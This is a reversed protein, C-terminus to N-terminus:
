DREGDPLQAEGDITLANVGTWHLAPHHSRDLSIRVDGLVVHELRRLALGGSKWNGGWHSPITRCDADDPIEPAAERIHLSIDRFTLNRIACADKSGVYSSAVCDAAIGCFRLNEIHAAYTTKPDENGAWVFFAQAVNRMVINQFLIRDIETGRDIRTFTVAPAISLIDIGHRADRITLNSFVCDRIPADGEYGIRIACTASSLVCNAVAVDECPAPRGLRFADSKLAICDDGAELDCDSIRVRRSSDIDLVDTNPGLRPNRVTLGHIRVRECGLTWVTYAAANVITLDRITVDRCDRLYIVVPRAPKPKFVEYSIPTREQDLPAETAGSFCEKEWFAAGSGDIRGGGEITLETVDHGDLLYHRLSQPHVKADTRYDNIEKSALLTAGREIRLTLRDALRLTGSRYVGPPLLVEGGGAAAAADIAAQIATTDATEGDGKAGFERVSFIM